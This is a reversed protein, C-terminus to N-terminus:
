PASELLTVFRDIEDESTMINPSVRLHNTDDGTFPRVVVGAQRYLWRAVSPAERDRVHVAVLSAGDEWRRPSRWELRGSGEVRERLRGHLRRLRRVKETPGLAQQFDAADGLALVEPLNRTGYDEFVRITGEWREQGWTVWLPRLHSQLEPSLWLVGLGKPSQVWKHPSGAYADVGSGEVDLPLMGVTQAGDVAVVEVGRDHAGEGLAALPHRIGVVNDVHPFVLVRTEPRIERLHLEAVEEASLGPADGHPFDFARVRFGRRDAEHRWAISAGDHNLSSFLVEDGPGLPRGGPELGGALVNFGETTNHTLAVREPSAGMLSAVSARASARGEEWAGSWMYLWPNTECLDVYRDRADRVARPMTGISAHNLYVVEPGLLYLERLEAPGPLAPAASIRLLERNVANEARLFGPLLSAASAGGLAALFSRRSPRSLTM